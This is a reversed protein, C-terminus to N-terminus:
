EQFTIEAYNTAKFPRLFELRFDVSDNPRSDTITMSGEGIKNNGSWRMIAGKGEAPGEFATTANPDLKAWPSWANWKQLTNVQDFVIGAPAPIVTSRVVRFDSPRTSVVAVILGIIVLIVGLTGVIM